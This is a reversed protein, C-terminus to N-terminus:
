RDGVLGATALLAELKNRDPVSALPYAVLRPM